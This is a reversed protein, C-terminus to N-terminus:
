WEDGNDSTLGASHSKPKSNYDSLFCLAACAFGFIMSFIVGFGVGIVSGALRSTISSLGGAFGAGLEGLLANGIAAANAGIDTRFLLFAALPMLSLVANVACGIKGPAAVACVIMAIGTILPVYCWSSYSMAWIANKSIGILAIFPLFLYTLLHGVGCAAAGIKMNKNM